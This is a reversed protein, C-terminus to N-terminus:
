FLSAFLDYLGSQELKPMLVQYIRNGQWLVYSSNGRADTRPSYLVSLTNTALSKHNSLKLDEGGDFGGNAMKILEEGVESYSELVSGHDRTPYNAYMQARSAVLADSSLPSCAGLASKWAVAHEKDSLGSRPHFNHSGLIYARSSAFGALGPQCAFAAFKFHTMHSTHASTQKLDFNAPYLKNMARYWPNMLITGIKSAGDSTFFGNTVIHVKVGRKMAAEFAARVDAAFVAYPTEVYIEKQESDILKLFRAKVQDEAPDLSSTLVTFGSVGSLELAPEIRNSDDWSILPLLSGKETPLTNAMKLYSAVSIPPQSAPAWLLQFAYNKRVPIDRMPIDSNPLRYHGDAHNSVLDKFSDKAQQFATAADAGHHTCLLLDGDFFSTPQGSLYDDGLNRGGLVFCGAGSPSQVLFLKRHNLRNYRRLAYVSQGIDDTSRNLQGTLSDVVKKLQDGSAQDWIPDNVMAQWANMAKTASSTDNTSGAPGAPVPFADGKGMVDKMNLGFDRLNALLNWTSINAGASKGANDAMGALRSTVTVVRLYLSVPDVSSANYQPGGMFNPLHSGLAIIYDQVDNHIHVTVGCNALYQFIEEQTKADDTGNWANTQGALSGSKADVLMEVSVGRRATVCLHHALTRAVVGNDFEFTAIKVQSGSPLSDLLKLRALFASNNDQFYAPKTYQAAYSDFNLDVSAFAPTAAFAFLSFLFKSM